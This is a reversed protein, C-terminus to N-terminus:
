EGRPQKERAKAVLNRAKIMAKDAAAKACDQTPPTSIPYKEGLEQCAAEAADKIRKQLEKPGDQTALDIDTINVGYSLSVKPIPLGIYSRDGAIEEHVLGADGSQRTFEPRDTSPVLVINSPNAYVAASAVVGSAFIAIAMNPFSKSLKGSVNRKM